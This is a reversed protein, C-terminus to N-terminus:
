PTRWRRTGISRVSAASCTSTWTRRSAARRASSKEPPKGNASLLADLRQRVREAGEGGPYWKLYEEYEAKAHALQGHRERAVGLLEKSEASNAHDPLSNVKTFIRIAEDLEGDTLARRGTAMLEDSRQLATDTDSPMPAPAGPRATKASSRISVVLSRFDRGPRVDFAVERSFRVIVYRGNSRNGEYVVELLPVPWGPPAGLSERRALSTTDGPDLSVPAVQIQITDGSDAPSHRLYRIPTTFRISVDFVDDHERLELAELLRPLSTEARAVLACGLLALALWTPARRRAPRASM